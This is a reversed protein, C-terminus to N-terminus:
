QQAKGIERELYWLAKRLDELRDGKRGARAIYKVCNGLNFGLGWAEIAAIPEVATETYHKPHNIPDNLREAVERDQAMVRNRFEVADSGSTTKFLLYGDAPQVGVNWCEVARNARRWVTYEDNEIKPNTNTM